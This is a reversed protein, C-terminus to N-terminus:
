GGRSLLKAVDYLGQTHWGIDRGWKAVNRFHMYVKILQISAPIVLDFDQIEEEGPEIELEKGEPWESEKSYGTWRIEKNKDDYLEREDGLKQQISTDLPLIQLVRNSASRISIMVDGINKITVSTHVCIKKDTLRIAEVEQSLNAKPLGGRQKRYILLRWIGGVIATLVLIAATAISCIEAVDKIQM